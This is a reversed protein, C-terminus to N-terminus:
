TVKTGRKPGIPPTKPKLADGKATTAAAPASAGGEDAARVVLRSNNTNNKSPFFVMIGRSSTNTNAAVNPTLMFGSAASPMSCRAM